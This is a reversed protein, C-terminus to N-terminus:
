YNTLMFTHKSCLLYEGFTLKYGRLHKTQHQLVKDM